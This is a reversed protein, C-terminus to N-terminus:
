FLIPREVNYLLNQLLATENKIERILADLSHERRLSVQEANWIRPGGVREFLIRYPVESAKALIEAQARMEASWSAVHAVVDKLAWRSPVLRGRGSGVGESGWIERWGMLLDDLEICLTVPRVRVAPVSGALDSTQELLQQWGQQLEIGINGERRVLMGHHRRQQEMRLAADITARSMLSTRGRETSKLTEHGCRSGCVNSLTVIVIISRRNASRYPGRSKRRRCEQSSEPSSKFTKRVVTSGCWSLVADLRLCRTCGSRHLTTRRTTIKSRNM